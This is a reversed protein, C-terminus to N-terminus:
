SVTTLRNRWDAISAAKALAVVNCRDDEFYFCQFGHVRLLALLEVSSAGFDRLRHDLVEVYICDVRDLIPEAGRLVQLEFGEVDIKLLNVHGVGYESFIDSLRECRVTIGSEGDLLVRNSDDRRQEDTIELFGADSGLAVNLCEINKCGNDEVTTKLYRFTRPHAEVAIVRGGDGVVRSGALSICGINAGADVLLDGKSLYSTVFEEARDVYEPDVWLTLAVNSKGFFPVKYNGRSIRLLESLGSRQLLYGALAKIPRRLKPSDSKVLRRWPIM